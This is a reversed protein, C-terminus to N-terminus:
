VYCSWASLVKSRGLLKKGLRTAISHTLPMCDSTEDSAYGFRAALTSHYQQHFFDQVPQHTAEGMIPLTKYIGPSAPNWDDVTANHSLILLTPQSNLFLCRACSVLRQHIHKNQVVSLGPKSLSFELSSLIPMIRRSKQPKKSKLYRLFIDM